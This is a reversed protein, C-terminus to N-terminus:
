IPEYRVEMLRDRHQEYRYDDYEAQRNEIVIPIQEDMWEQFAVKGYDKIWKEEQKPTLKIHYLSINICEAEAPTDPEMQLGDQYSGPCDPYIIMDVDFPIEECYITATHHIEM